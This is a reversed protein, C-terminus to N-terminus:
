CCHLPRKYCNEFYNLFFHETNCFPFNLKHHIAMTLSNVTNTDDQAKNLLDWSHGYHVYLSVLESNLPKRFSCHSSGWSYSTIGKGACKATTKIYFKCGTTGTLPNLRVCRKTHQLSDGNMIVLSLQKVFLCAVIGSSLGQIIWWGKDTDGIGCGASDRPSKM